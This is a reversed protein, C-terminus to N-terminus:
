IISPDDMSMQYMKSPYLEKICEDFERTLDTTRGDGFFSSNM